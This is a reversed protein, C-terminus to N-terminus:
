VKGIYKLSDVIFNYLSYQSKSPERRFCFVILSLIFNYWISSGNKGEDWCHQWVWLSGWTHTVFIGAAPNCLSSRMERLLIQKKKVGAWTKKTMRRLAAIEWVGSCLPTHQWGEVWCHFSYSEARVPGCTQNVPFNSHGKIRKITPNWVWTHLCVDIIANDNLRSYTWHSSQTGPALGASHCSCPQSDQYASCSEQSRCPM